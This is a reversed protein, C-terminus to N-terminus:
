AFFMMGLNRGAAIEELKKAVLWEPCEIGSESVKVQSKPFWIDRRIMKGLQINMIAVNALIAKETERVINAKITM